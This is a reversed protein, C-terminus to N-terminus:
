ENDLFGELFGEEKLIKAFNPSKVASSLTMAKQVEIFENIPEVFSIEDQRCVETETPPINNTIWRITYNRWTDEGVESSLVVGYYHLGDRHRLVIQGKNM